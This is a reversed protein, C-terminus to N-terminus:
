LGRLFERRRAAIVDALDRVPLVGNAPILLNLNVTKRSRASNIWITEQSGQLRFGLDEFEDVRTTTLETEIMQELEEETPTYDIAIHVKTQQTLYSPQTDDKLFQSLKQFLGRDRKATQTLYGDRIVTRIKPRERKLLEVEAAKGKAKAKVVVNAKTHDGDGNLDRYGVITGNDDTVAYGSETRLFQKLYGLMPQVATIPNDFKLSAFVNHEPVFWFYTPFGPITDEVIPNDHVLPARGVKSDRALSAVGGESNPVTNWTALVWDGGTAPQLGFVYVPLSGRNARSASALETMGVDKDLAWEHLEQLAPVMDGFLLERTARRYFGFQEFEFFTLTMEPM